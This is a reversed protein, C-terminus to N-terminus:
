TSGRDDAELDDDGHLDPRLAAARRLYLHGIGRQARPSNCILLVRLCREVATCSGHEKVLHFPVTGWGSRRAAASPNSGALEDPITLIAAAIDDLACGNADVLENLLTLTADAIADRGDSDVTIAGRIGRCAMNSNKM